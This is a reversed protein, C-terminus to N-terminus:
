IRGGEIVDAGRGNYLGRFNTLSAITGMRQETIDHCFRQLWKPSLKSNPLSTYITFDSQQTLSRLSQMAEEAGQGFGTYTKPLVLTPLRSLEFTLAITSQGFPTCQPQSTFSLRRIRDPYIFIYVSTFGRQSADPVGELRLRKRLRFLAHNHRRSWHIDLLINDMYQDLQWCVHACIKTRDIRYPWTPQIDHDQQSYSDSLSPTTGAVTQGSHITSKDDSQPTNPNTTTGLGTSNAPSTSPDAM